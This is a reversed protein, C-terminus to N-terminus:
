TIPRWQQRERSVFSIDAVHIKTKSSILVSLNHLCYNTDVIPIKLFSTLSRIKNSLKLRCLGYGLVAEVNYQEFFYATWNKKSTDIYVVEHDLGEFAEGFNKLSSWFDVDWLSSEDYL